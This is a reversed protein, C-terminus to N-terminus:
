AGYGQRGHRRVCDVAEAVAKGDDCSFPQDSLEDWRGDDIQEYPSKTGTHHPDLMQTGAPGDFRSWDPRLGPFRHRLSTSM